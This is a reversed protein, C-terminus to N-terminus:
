EVNGPSAQDFDVMVTLKTGTKPSSEIALTGGIKRVREEIGRLGMGGSGSAAQLDFGIGDDRLELCVSEEGYRLDIKVSRAQAHKVANNLGEQAIRYLEQEISIPLRREGEVGIETKLGSRSEVAALRAQLAAVLGEKELVSPHLEFVLLRMELMAERTMERLRQLNELGVDIKGASLARRAAEAYLNVSYLAQTVSDHLERALRQREEMVAIQEVQQHLQTQDIVIAAQDAFLSIIRLDEKTFGGVKNIVDLVGIITSEVKLPVALLTDIGLHRLYDLDISAVDNFIVSEGSRVTQGALSGDIPLRDLASLIEGVASTVRLRDGDELLLVASGTADTLNLAENCIIELVERLTNKRLLSATVRQVGQSEALRQSTEGYLRANEVALAVSNAVGSALEVEEKTFAHGEGLTYNLAVGLVRGSLRIPVVLMSRIDLPPLIQHNVRPDTRADECVSPKKSDLAEQVLPFNTPDIQLKKIMALQPKSLRSTGAHRVLINTEEDMLYIGCQPMGTAAALMEAIRELVQSLELSGAAMQVSRLMLATREQSRRLEANSQKLDEVVREHIVIEDILAQKSKALEKALQRAQPNPAKSAKPLKKSADM